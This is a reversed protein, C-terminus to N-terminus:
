KCGGGSGASSLRDVKEELGALRNNMLLVTQCLQGIGTQFQSQMESLLLKIDQVDSKSAVDVPLVTPTPTSSHAPAPAATESANGASARHADFKSETQELNKNFILDNVNINPHQKRYITEAAAISTGSSSTVLLDELTKSNDRKGWGFPLEDETNEQNRRHEEEAEMKM